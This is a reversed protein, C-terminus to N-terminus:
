DNMFYKIEVVSISEGGCYMILASSNSDSKM